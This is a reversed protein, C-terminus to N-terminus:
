LIEQIYDWLESATDQSLNESYEAGNDYSTVTAGDPDVTAWTYSSVQIEVEKVDGNSDLTKSYDLADAFCEGATLQEWEKITAQTQEIVITNSLTM